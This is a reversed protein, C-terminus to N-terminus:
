AHLNKIYVASKKVDYACLQSASQLILVKWKDVHLYEEVLLRSVLM